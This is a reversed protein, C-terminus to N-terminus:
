SVTETGHAHPSEGWAKPSEGNSGPPLRLICFNGNRLLNEMNELQRQLLGYEKPSEGNSGPPLRLICFNGNCLLNEMNELQRQLLRYEPQSSGCACEICSAIEWPSDSVRKLATVTLDLSSLLEGLVQPRLVMEPLPAKLNRRRWVPAM